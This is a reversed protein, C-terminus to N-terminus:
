KKWKFMRGKNPSLAIGINQTNFCDRQFTQDHIAKILMVKLQMEQM